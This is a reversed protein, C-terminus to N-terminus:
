RSPRAGSRSTTRWRSSGASRAPRAGSSPSRRTSRSRPGTRACTTSRASRWRIPDPAGCRRQSGSARACPLSRRVSWGDRDFRLLREAAPNAAVITGDPDTAVISFPLSDLISRRLTDVQRANEVAAALIRETMDIMSALVYTKGRLQMPNLGIEIPFERGSAHRGFLARRAGIQRADQRSLFGERLSAYSSQFREPILDEVGMTLLRERDHGFLQETESNVLVILGQEDVMVMANPTAEIIQRLVSSDTDARSFIDPM